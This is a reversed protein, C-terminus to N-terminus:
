ANMPKGRFQVPWKERILLNLHLDCVYYNRNDVKVKMVAMDLCEECQQTESVTANRIFNIERAM